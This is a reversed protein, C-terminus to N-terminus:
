HGLKTITEKLNNKIIDIIKPLEIFNFQKSQTLSEVIQTDFDKSLDNKIENMDKKYHNGSVLLMPIIQIKKIGKRKMDDILQEKLAYYPFTGELSCCFNNLGIHKLFDSAYNISAIGANDLRPTGHIIFLNAIGNKSVKTNLDKLFITTDKAKTLIADTNKINSLSFKNFGDVTNKIVDHEDTPFINISSVIINKYGMMDLDSLVQPLNKYINKAKNLVKLVMRSSFALYIDIGKFEKEIVKKLQNYKEQEVVSGFCSLIIATDKKYHRYRKM